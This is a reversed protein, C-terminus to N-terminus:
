RCEQKGIALGALGHRQYAGRWQEVEDATLAHRVLLAAQEEASAEDFDNLVQLKRTPTWRDFATPLPRTRLALTM